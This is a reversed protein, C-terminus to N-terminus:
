VNRYFGLGPKKRMNWNFTKKHDCLEPFTEEILAITLLRFWTSWIESASLGIKMEELDSYGWLLEKNSLRKFPVSVVQNYIKSKMYYLYELWSMSLLTPNFIHVIKEASFFDRKAWCFGGDVNQNNWLSKYARELSKKIYEKKYDIYFTARCLLDVADLDDCSGGGGAYNFLGDYDQIKLVSDIVKEVYCPQKGLYTYYLFFHYAGAMQDHYTSHKDLNWFGSRPNQHRRLWEMISNIFLTNDNKFIEMDYIFFDLIFMVKNSVLWPNNWNLHTLWDQLLHENKYRELFVLTFDLTTGLTELAMIAFNTQLHEIYERDYSSHRSFEPVRKNFLGSKEDQLSKIFKITKDKEGSQYNSLENILDLAMIAFCTSCLNSTKSSPSFLFKGDDLHLRRIFHVIREQTRSSNNM